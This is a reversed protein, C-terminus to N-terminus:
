TAQKIVGKVQGKVCTIPAPPPERVEKMAAVDVDIAPVALRLTATAACLQESEAALPAGPM